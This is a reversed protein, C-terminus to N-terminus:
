FPHHSGRGVGNVNGFFGVLDKRYPLFSRHRDGSAAAGGKGYYLRHATMMDMELVRVRGKENVKKKEREAASPPLPPGDMSPRRDAKEVADAAASPPQPAALFLFRKRGDSHSRGIVLDRLRWRKSSSNGASHSRRRLDPSPPVSSPTWLCYSDAPIGELEDSESSSTSPADRDELMLKGLPLRAPKEAGERDGAGRDREEEHSKGESLVEGTLLARNFLPYIPLIRGNSFIEDASIPELGEFSSGRSFVAFEFEESGDDDGVEVVPEDLALSDVRGTIEELGPWEDPSKRFSPTSALLERDLPPPQVM